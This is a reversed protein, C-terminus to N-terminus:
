RARRHLGRRDGAVEAMPAFYLDRAGMHNGCPIEWAAVVTQATQRCSLLIPKRGADPSRAAAADRCFRVGGESMPQIPQGDNWQATIDGLTGTAPHYLYTLRGDTGSYRLAFGNGSPELGITFGPTLNDPLITEERTPFPLRGPGTSTGPSQGAFLTLNREPRPEFTLPPLQERYVSFNDFHIKRDEANRGGLVEFGELTAGGRCLSEREPTLKRHMLWWEQWQVTGLPVRIQQDGKSRLLVVIEVPPTSRDPAWAWNNGYVWFNVCDFPALIAVPKPPRVVVAPRPGTGRYVLTGVYRGWLQQQRSRSFRAAADSCEVTWGSLDEFDVLAPHDDATRNAWVM